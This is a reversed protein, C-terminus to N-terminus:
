QNKEEFFPLDGLAFSVILEAYEPGDPICATDTTRWYHSLRSPGSNSLGTPTRPASCSAASTKRFVPLRM